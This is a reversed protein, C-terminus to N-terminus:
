VQNIRELEKIVIALAGVVVARCEREEDNECRPCKKM